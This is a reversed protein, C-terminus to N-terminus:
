DLAPYISADGVTFQGNAYVIAGDMNIEGDDMNIIMDWHITSDVNRSGSNPYGAGIALHVTRCMKEDYLISGTPRNLLPHTGIGLEGLFRSGADCDLIAQLFDLGKSAKAEVVKGDKFYLEIDEVCNGAYYAPKDLRLWGNASDEVPATFIEGDPMNRHGCCNIWTRDAISLKLDIFEGVLHVEHHPTLAEMVTEHWVGLQKWWAIPDDLHLMNAKTVYDDLEALSMGADQARAHTAQETLVWLLEGRGQREMFLKSIPSNAKTKRSLRGADLSAMSRTNTASRINILKNCKQMLWLSQENIQDLQTANAHMIYREASGDPSTEYFPNAGAKVVEGAVHEALRSDIETYRILVNDGPSVGVSYNVLLNAFRQLSM